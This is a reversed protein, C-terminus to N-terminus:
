GLAATGGGSGDTAPGCDEAVADGDRATGPELAPSRGDAVGSV